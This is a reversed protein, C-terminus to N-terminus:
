LGAVLLIAHGSGKTGIGRASKGSFRSLVPQVKRHVPVIASSASISIYSVSVITILLIPM